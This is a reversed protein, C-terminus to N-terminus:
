GADKDLLLTLEATCADLKDRLQIRRRVRSESVRLAATLPVAVAGLGTATLGLYVTNYGASRATRSAVTSAAEQLTARGTLFRVGETGGALLVTTVPMAEVAFGAVGELASEMLGDGLDDVYNESAEELHAHPIDASIVNDDGEFQQIPGPTLVKIDPYERLHEYVPGFAVTAKLQLEEAVEGTESEIRLDWGPQTSSEALRATQGAALKVGGISEGANLKDEVLVEFYKGKVGNVYGELSQASMGRLSDINVQPYQLEFARRLLQNDRPDLASRLLSDVQAEAAIAALELVEQESRVARSHALESLRSREAEPYSQALALLQDYTM